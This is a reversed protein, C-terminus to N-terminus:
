MYLERGANMWASGSSVLQMIRRDLCPYWDRSGGMGRGGQDIGAAGISHPHQVKIRASKGECAM